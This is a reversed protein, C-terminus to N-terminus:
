FLTLHFLVSVKPTRGREATKLPLRPTREPTEGELHADAHERHGGEAAHGEDLGSRGCVCSGLANLGLLLLPFIKRLEGHRGGQRREGLQLLHAQNRHKLSLIDQARSCLTHIIEELQEASDIDTLAARVTHLRVNRNVAADLLLHRQQEVADVDAVGLRAM